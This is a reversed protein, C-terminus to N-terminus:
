GAPADPRPLNGPRVCMWMDTGSLVNEADEYGIAMRMPTEPDFGKLIRTLIQVANWEDMRMARMIMHAIAEERDLGVDDLGWRKSHETWSLVEYETV